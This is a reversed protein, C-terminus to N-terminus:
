DECGEGTLIACGAEAQWQSNFRHGRLQLAEGWGVVGLYLHDDCENRYGRYGLSTIM